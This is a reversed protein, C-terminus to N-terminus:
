IPIELFFTAGENPRSEAWVRGGMRDSAKRVMALGIGTGAYDEARQLRQFIEFIRDHFKMDFGIGNDGVSLIVKDNEVRAAVHVLPPNADRSFKLANGLLNRLAIALGERDARVMISPVDMSLRVGSRELDYSLEDVMAKVMEQLDLSVNRLACREMRTYHYLDDILRNMLATCERVNRIFMRGEEDLRDAYDKELLQSYGDIGRLPAKLDHSVSYSFSDLERNMVELRATRERVRGELEANFKLIMEEVKKRESIDESFVAVGEDVPQINIRFWGNQGDPFTFENDLRHSTRANMCRELLTFLETDAIGPWCEKVTRGLLDTATRRSHQEAAKNFYSYRWDFGIIQCGELMSDLTRRYKSESQRLADVTQVLKATRENVWQELQERDANATQLTSFVKRTNRHVFEHTLSFLLGMVFFIALPIGPEPRELLMSHRIPMFYHWVLLTSIVTSAVGGWLGGVWSSFFVAPYFFIWISPKIVPWFALQLVFAVIPIFVAVMLRHRNRPLDVTVVTEGFHM